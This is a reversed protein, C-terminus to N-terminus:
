PLPQIQPMWDYVMNETLKKQNSGDYDMSYVEFDGDVDSNFLIKTGDSSIDSTFDQWHNTLQLREGTNRDERFIGQSYCNFYIYPQTPHYLPSFSNPYEIIEGNQKVILLSTEWIQPKNLVVAIESGDPSFHPM